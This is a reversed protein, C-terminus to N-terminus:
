LARRSLPYLGQMNVVQWRIGLLLAPVLVNRWPSVALLLWGWLLHVGPAMSTIVLYCINILKLIGIYIKSFVRWRVHLM